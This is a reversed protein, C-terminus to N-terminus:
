KPISATNFRSICFSPYSIRFTSSPFTVKAPSSAAMTRALIKRRVVSRIRILIPLKLAVVKSSSKSPVLASGQSCNIGSSPLNQTAFAVEILLLSKLGDSIWDIIFFAITSRRFFFYLTLQNGSSPALKGRRTVMMFSTTVTPNSM